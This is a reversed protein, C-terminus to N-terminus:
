RARDDQDGSVTLIPTLAEGIEEKKGCWACWRTHEESPHLPWIIEDPEGFYEAYIKRTEAYPADAAEAATTRPIHDIFRGIAQECFRRYLQTDLIMAHWFEDAYNNIIALEGTASIAQLALFRKAEQEATRAEEASFEETRQLSARVSSLNFDEIKGFRNLEDAALPKIANLPRM